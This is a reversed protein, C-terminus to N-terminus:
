GEDDEDADDDDVAVVVCDAVFVSEEAFLM